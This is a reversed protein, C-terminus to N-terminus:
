LKRGPNDSDRQDGGNMHPDTNENANGHGRNDKGGVESPPTDAPPTTREPPTPSFEPASPSHGEPRLGMGGSKPLCTCAGLAAALIVMKWM